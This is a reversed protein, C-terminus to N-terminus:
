RVLCGSSPTEGKWKYLRTLEEKTPPEDSKKYRPFLAWRGVPQLCLADAVKVATDMLSVASCSLRARAAVFRGTICRSCRKLMIHHEAVRMTHMHRGSFCLLLLGQHRHVSPLVSLLARDLALRLAPFVAAIALGLVYGSMTTDLLRLPQPAAGNLHGM